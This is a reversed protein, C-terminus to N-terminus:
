WLEFTYPSAKSSPPSTLLRELEELDYTNYTRAAEEVEWLFSVDHTDCALAEAINEATRYTVGTFYNRLYSMNEAEMEHRHNYESPSLITKAKSKTYKSAYKDIRTTGHYSYRSQQHSDNSYWTDGNWTGAQENIITYRGTSELFVLKSGSVYSAILERTTECALFNAPLKQLMHNFQATDSHTENGLGAIVGNHVFSLNNNVQFPHLNDLTRAGSTAIRFHLVIPQKNKPRITQYTKLLEARDYTKFTKVQGREIWILGAGEPNNNWATNITAANLQSRKNLIAICM